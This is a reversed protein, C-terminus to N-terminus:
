AKGTTEPVISDELAESLHEFIAEGIMEPSDFRRNWTRLESLIAKRTELSVNWTRHCHPCILGCGTEKKAPPEM